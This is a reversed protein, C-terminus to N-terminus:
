IVKWILAGIGYVIAMLVVAGIINCILDAFKALACCAITAGALVLGFRLWKPWEM